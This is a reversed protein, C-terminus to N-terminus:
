RRTKDAIMQATKNILKKAIKKVRALNFQKKKKKFKLFVQVGKWVDLLWMFRFLRWM